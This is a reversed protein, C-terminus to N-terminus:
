EAAGKRAERALARLARQRQNLADYYSRKASGIAAEAEALARHLDSDPFDAVTASKRGKLTANIGGREIVEEATLELKSLRM